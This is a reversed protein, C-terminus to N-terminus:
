EDKIKLNKFGHCSDDLLDFSDSNESVETCESARRSVESPIPLEVFQNKLGSSFSRARGTFQSHLLNFRSFLCSLEEKSILSLQLFASITM